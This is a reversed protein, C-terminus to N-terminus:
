GESVVQFTDSGEVGVVEEADGAEHEHDFGLGFDFVQLFDDEFDDFFEVVLEAVELFVGKELGDDAEGEKDSVELFCILEFVYLLFHNHQVFESAIQCDFKHFELIVFEVGM